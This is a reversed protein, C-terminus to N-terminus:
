ILIGYKSTQHGFKRCLLRTLVQLSSTYLHPMLYSLSSHIMHNSHFSAIPLFLSGDGRFTNKLESISNRTELNLWYTITGKFVRFCLRSDGLDVLISRLAIHSLSLLILSFRVPSSCTSTRCEVDKSYGVGVGLGIM